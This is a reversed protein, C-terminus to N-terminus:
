DGLMHCLSAMRVFLANEAQRYFALRPDRVEVAFDGSRQMPDLVVCHSRLGAMLEADIRLNFANRSKLLQVHAVTRPGNLYIADAERIADVDREVSLAMGREECYARVEPALSGSFPVLTVKVDDFLALARLLASVNRHELRGVAALHVGDVGGLEHKVTYIDALAQTPHDDASGGNIVPLSDAQEAREVVGTDSSRLVVLDIHLSALINVINDVYSPTSVPFFQSADETHYARGGLLEIAREFSTRTLFSPEYFLCYISRGAVRSEVDVGNRLDDCLEFLESEIWDRTLRSTATLHRHRTM